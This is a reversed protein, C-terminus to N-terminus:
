ESVECWHFGDDSDDAVDFGYLGDALKWVAGDYDDTWISRDWRYRTVQYDGDQYNWGNFGDPKWANAAAIVQRVRTELDNM